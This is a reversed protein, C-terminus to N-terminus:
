EGEATLPARTIRSMGIVIASHPVLAPKVWSRSLVTWLGTGAAKISASAHAGDDLDVVVAGHAHAITPLFHGVKEGSGQHQSTIRRPVPQLWKPNISDDLMVRGLRGLYNDAPALDRDPLGFVGGWADPAPPAQYPRLHSAIPM